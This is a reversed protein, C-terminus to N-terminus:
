MANASNRSDGYSKDVDLIFQRVKGIRNSYWALVKVFCNDPGKDCSFFLAPRLGNVKDHHFIDLHLLFLIDAVTENIISERLLKESPATRSINEFSVEKGLIDSAALIQARALAVLDSIAQFSAKPQIAMMEGLLRRSLVNNENFKKAKFIKTFTNFKAKKAKTISHNSTRVVTHYPSIQNQKLIDINALSEELMNKKENLQKKLEDKNKKLIENEHQMQEFKIKQAEFKASLEDYALQYATAIDRLQKAQINKQEIQSQLHHILKRMELADISEAYSSKKEGASITANNMAVDQGEEEEEFTCIKNNEDEENEAEAIMRMPNSMMRWDDDNLNEINDHHPDIGSGCQAAINLKEFGLAILNLLGTEKEGSSDGEVEATMDDRFCVRKKREKRSQPTQKLTPSLLRFRENKKQGSSVQGDDFGAVASSKLENRGGAADAGGFGKEETKSFDFDYIIAANTVENPIESLLVVGSELMENWCTLITEITRHHNKNSSERGNSSQIINKLVDYNWPKKCRSVRKRNPYEM